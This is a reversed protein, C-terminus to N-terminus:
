EIDNRTSEQFRKFKLTKEKVPCKFSKVLTAWEPYIGDTLYCGKKLQVGNVIYIVEPAKSQLLDKFLDLENLVNIDNNSSALGLLRILDM